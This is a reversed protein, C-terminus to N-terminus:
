CVVIMCVHILYYRQDKQFDLPAQLDQHDGLELPVLDDKDVRFLISLTCYSLSSLKFVEFAALQTYSVIIINRLCQKTLQTHAIDKEFKGSRWRFWTYWRSWGKGTTFSSYWLTCQSPLDKVGFVAKDKLLLGPVACSVIIVLTSGHKPWV